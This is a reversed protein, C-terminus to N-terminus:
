LADYAAQAAAEAAPGDRNWIREIAEFIMPIRVSEAPHGTEAEYIEIKQIRASDGVIGYTPRLEYTREEIDDGGFDVRITMRRGIDMAPNAKILDAWVVLQRKRAREAGHADIRRDKAARTELKFKPAM